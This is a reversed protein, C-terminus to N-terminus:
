TIYNENSIEDSDSCDGDGFVLERVGFNRAASQIQSAFDGGM